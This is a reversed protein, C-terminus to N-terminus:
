TGHAERGGEDDLASRPRQRQLAQPLSGRDGGRAARIRLRRRQQGPHRAPRIGKEGRFVPARHAGAEVCRRAGRDGHGRPGCDGHGCPRRRAQQVFLQRGGVRGRGGASERHEGWDGEVSGDRGGSKRGTEEVHGESRLWSESSWTVESTGPAVFPARGRYDPLKGSRTPRGLRRRGGCGQISCTSPPRSGPAASIRSSSPLRRSQRPATTTPGDQDQAVARACSRREPKAWQPYRPRRQQPSGLRRVHCRQQGRPYLRWRTCSTSRGGSM